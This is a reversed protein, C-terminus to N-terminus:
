FYKILHKNLYNNFEHECNVTVKERQLTGNSLKTVYTMHYAKKRLDFREQIREINLHYAKPDPTWDNMGHLRVNGVLQDRKIRWNENVKLGRSIMELRLRRHRKAVYLLKDRFQKVHGKNLTYPVNGTICFREPYNRLENVIRIIERTEAQLHEDLLDRPDIVNLRTM